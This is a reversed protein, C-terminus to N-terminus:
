KSHKKSLNQTIVEVADSPFDFNEGAFGILPRLGDDNHFDSGVTYFLNHRDAFDRWKKTEDFKKDFRDVYIYYAELGDPKMSEVIKEIDDESLGDEHAYAVPHALVVKGGAQRIVEGAEKPSISEKKVFAPCNENMVTEIFEGKNPIHGFNKMLLDYNEQNAIVDLSIHAKTVADVADLKEFNVKYGLAELKKTVKELYIHRANRITYLKKQLETNKIDINYGLVHVGFGNFKTSIEVAPIVTINKNKIYDFFEDTYAGVTDHDAIAFYKVENKVAEDVVEFPTLAGDSVTTHIHLDIHTM